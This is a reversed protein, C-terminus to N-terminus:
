AEPGHYSAFNSGNYGRLDDNVGVKYDTLYMIGEDGLAPGHNYPTRFDKTNSLEM